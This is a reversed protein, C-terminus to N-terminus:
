PRRMFLELCLSRTVVAPRGDVLCEISDTAQAKLSQGTTDGSFVAPSRAVCDRSAGIVLGFTLGSVAASSSVSGAVPASELCTEPRPFRAGGGISRFTGAFRTGTQTTITWQHDCVETVQTGRLPHVYTLLLAGLWEGVM